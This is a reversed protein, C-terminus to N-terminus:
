GTVGWPILHKARLRLHDSYAAAGVFIFQTLRSTTAVSAFRLADLTGRNRQLAQKFM